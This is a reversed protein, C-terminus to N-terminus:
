NSQAGVAEWLLWFMETPVAILWLFTSIVLRLSTPGLYYKWLRTDLNRNLAPTTTQDRPHRWNKPPTDGINRPPPFPKGIEPPRWNKPTGLKKPLLEELNKKKKKWNRKEWFFEKHSAGVGGGWSVTLARWTSMRSSHM